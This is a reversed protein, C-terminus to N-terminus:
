RRGRLRAGVHHMSKRWICSMADQGAVGGALTSSKGRRLGPRREQRAASLAGPARRPEGEKKNCDLDRAARCSPSAPARSAPSSCCSSSGAAGGDKGRARPHPPQRSACGSAPPQHGTPTAAPHRQRVASTHERQGKRVHLGHLGEPALHAPASRSTHTHARRLSRRRGPGSSSCTPPEAQTGHCAQRKDGCWGHGKCFVATATANQLCPEPSM